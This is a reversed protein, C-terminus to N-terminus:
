SPTCTHDHKSELLEYGFWKGILEPLKGYKLQHLMKQIIGSTHFYLYTSAFNLHLKGYFRNVLENDSLDTFNAKPLENRCHFCILEENKQWDKNAYCCVKPLIISLIDNILRM